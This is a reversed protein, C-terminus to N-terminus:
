GLRTLVRLRKFRIYQYSPIEQNVAVKILSQVRYKRVLVGQEVGGPKRFSSSSGVRRYVLIEILQIIVSGTYQRQPLTYSYIRIIISRRVLIYYRTRTVPSKISSSTLLKILLIYLSQPAGLVIIESRPMYNILSKQYCSLLHRLIVKYSFEAQYRSISLQVSITLMAIFLYRQVKILKICSLQTLQRSSVLNAIFLQTLLFVPM